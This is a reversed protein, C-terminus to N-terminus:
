GRMHEGRSTSGTTRRVFATPNFCGEQSAIAAHGGPSLGRAGVGCMPDNQPQERRGGLVSLGAACRVVLQTVDGRALASPRRSELGAEM